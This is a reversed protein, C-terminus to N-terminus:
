KIGHYEITFCFPGDHVLDPKPKRRMALIQNKPAASWGVKVVRLCDSSVLTTDYSPARQRGHDSGWLLNFILPLWKQFNFFFTQGIAWEELISMSFNTQGIAWEQLISM